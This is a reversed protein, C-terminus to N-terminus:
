TNLFTYSINIDRIESAKLDSIIKPDIYFTISYTSRESPLLTQKKYCFCDIEVFYKDLFGPKVEYIARGSTEKFSYNEVYFDIKYIQGIKADIFNTKSSFKWSLTEEVKTDLNIKIIRNNEKRNKEYIIAVALLITILLFFIGIIFIKSSDKTKIM